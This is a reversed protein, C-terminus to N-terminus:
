KKVYIKKKSGKFIKNKREMFMDNKTTDIFKIVNYLDKLYNERNNLFCETSMKKEQYLLENYDLNVKINFLINKLIKLKEKSTKEEFSVNYKELLINMTNIETNEM